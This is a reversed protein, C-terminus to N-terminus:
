WQLEVISPPLSLLSPPSSLLPLSPYIHFSISPALAFSDFSHFLTLSPPPGSSLLHFLLFRHPRHTSQLSCPVFFVSLLSSALLLHINLLKHLHRPWSIASLWSPAATLEPKKKQRDEWPVCTCIRVFLVAFMLGLSFSHSECAELMFVWLRQREEGQQWANNIWELKWNLLGHVEAPSAYCMWAACPLIPPLLGLPRSLRIWKLVCLSQCIAQVRPAEPLRGM